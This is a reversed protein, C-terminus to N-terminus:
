ASKDFLLGGPSSLEIEGAAFFYPGSHTGINKPAGPSISEESREDGRRPAKPTWFRQATKDFLLGGPQETRDRRGCFFLSGNPDRYKKARGSLNSSGVAQNTSM